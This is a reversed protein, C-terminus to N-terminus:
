YNLTILGLWKIYCKPCGLLLFKKGGWILFDVFLTECKTVSKGHNNYGYFFELIIKIYPSLCINIKKNKEAGWVM